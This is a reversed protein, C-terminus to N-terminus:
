RGMSRWLIIMIRELPDWLLYQHNRRLVLLHTCLVIQPESYGMLLVGTTREDLTIQLIATAALIVVPYTKPGSAPAVHCSLSLPAFIVQSFISPSNSIECLCPAVEGFGVHWGPLLVSNWLRWRHRRSRRYTRCGFLRPLLLGWRGGRTKGSSCGILISMRADWVLFGMTASPLLHCSSTGLLFPYLSLSSCPLLLCVNCNSIGLIVKSQLIELPITSRITWWCSCIWRDWVVPPGRCMGSSSSM